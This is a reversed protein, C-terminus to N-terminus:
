QYTGAPLANQFVWKIPSYGATNKDTTNGLAEATVQVEVWEKSRDIVAASYNLSTMTFQIQTATAGAGNAWNLVLTQKTGTTFKTLQTDDEMLFTLKVSVELPGNFITFPDQVNSIGFIPTGSRKMTISGDVMDTVSSGGITLLGQWVPTPIVTSFATTPATVVASVWGMSKASWQLLGDKTFTLTLENISQGAWARVAAAYFDVFTFSAPQTNVGVATANKLAITHTYPASAGVTTVDGLLGAVFWPFTDAFAAGSLDYTSWRRGQQAGYHKVSSGRFGDDYLQDIHDEAKAKTIDIPIYATPTNVATGETTEKAIGLYSRATDQVTM